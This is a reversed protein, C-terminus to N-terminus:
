STAWAQVGPWFDGDWCAILTHDRAHYAHIGDPVGPVSRTAVYLESPYLGGASPAARYHMSMGPFERVLTVGYTHYLLCGLRPADLPGLTGASM